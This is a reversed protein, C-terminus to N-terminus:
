KQLGVLKAVAFLRHTTTFDPWGTIITLLAEDGPAVYSATQAEEDATASTIAIPKTVEIVQYVFVIGESDTLLLEQGVTLAGAALPALPASGQVQHGSLVVRSAAGAGASTVHWGIADTPPMWHTTRQGNREVIGWGMPVIPLDVNLAPIALRTPSRAQAPPLPAM